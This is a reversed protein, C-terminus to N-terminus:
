SEIEYHRTDCILRSYLYFRRDTEFRIDIRLLPAGKKTGFLAALESSAGIAKVNQRAGVIGTHYCKNLTEFFSGNVFPIRTFGELRNGSFWTEELMVAHPGICRLRKFRVCAEQAEETDFSFDNCWAGYHPTEIMESRVERSGAAETLGKISLIGLSRQKLTVMSGKGKHKAIYGEKLLMDLAQRATTRTINESAALTNESPLLDGDAYRGSLIDHKLRKYLAM